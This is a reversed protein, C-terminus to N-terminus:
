PREPDVRVHDVPYRGLDDPDFAAVVGLEGDDGAAAVDDAAVRGAPSAHVAHGRVVHAHEPGHDVGQSQLIRELVHPLRGPSLGGDAHGLHGLGVDAPPRHPMQFLAPDDDQRSAAAIGVEAGVGRGGQSRHLDFGLDHELRGHDVADVAGVGVLVRFGLAERM